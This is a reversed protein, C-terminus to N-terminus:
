FSIHLKDLTAAYATAKKIIQESFTLATETTVYHKLEEALQEKKLHRFDLFGGISLKQKITSEQELVATKQRNEGDLISQLSIRKVFEKVKSKKEESIKIGYKAGHRRFIGMVTDAFIIGNISAFNTESIKGRFIIVNAKMTNDFSSALFRQQKVGLNTKNGLANRWEQFEKKLSKKLIAAVYKKLDALNQYKKPIIDSTSIYIPSNVPLRIFGLSALEKPYERAAPLDVSKVPKNAYCYLIYIDTDAMSNMVDDNSLCGNNILDHIVQQIEENEKTFIQFSTVQEQYFKETEQRALETEQQRKIVNSLKINFDRLLNKDNLYRITRSTIEFFVAAVITLIIIPKSFSVVGLEAGLLLAFAGSVLIGAILDIKSSINEM